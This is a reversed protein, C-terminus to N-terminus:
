TKRASETKNGKGMEEWKKRRKNGRHEGRKEQCIHVEGIPQNRGRIALNTLESM